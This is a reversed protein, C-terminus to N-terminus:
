PAPRVDDFRFLFDPETMAGNVSLSTERFCDVPDRFLTGTVIVRQNRSMAAVRNFLPSGSPILTRDTGDAFALNWTQLKVNRDLSVALVGHGESTSSLTAITGVWNRVVPQTMLRCLAVGRAPRTAGRAMDNAAARYAARHEALLALFAQQERPIQAAAAPAPPAAPVQAQVVPPQPVPAQAVQRPAEAQPAPPAAGVATEARPPPEHVAGFGVFGVVFITLGILAARTRGGGFLKPVILGLVIAALGFVTMLAFLTEM